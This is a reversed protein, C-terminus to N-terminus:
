AALIADTKEIAIKLAQELTPRLAAKAAEETLGTYLQALEPLEKSIRVFVIINEEPLAKIETKVGETIEILDRVADELEVFFLRPWRDLINQPHKIQIEQAFCGDLRVCGETEAAAYFGMHGWLPTTITPKSTTEM